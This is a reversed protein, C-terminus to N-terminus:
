PAPSEQLRPTAKHIYDPFTAATRCLVPGGPPASLWLVQRGHMFWLTDVCVLVKESSGQPARVPRRWVRGLDRLFLTGPGRPRALSYGALWRRDDLAHGDAFRLRLLLVGPLYVSLFRPITGLM